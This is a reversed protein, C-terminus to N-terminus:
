LVATSATKHLPTDGDDNIANVDAGWDVLLKIVEPFNKTCAEHLPTELSSDRANVHAGSELLTQIVELNQNGCAIHLATSNMHEDGMVVNVNARRFKILRRVLDADGDICADLLQQDIDNVTM